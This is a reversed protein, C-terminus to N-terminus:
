LQFFVAQPGLLELWITQLLTSATMTIMLLIRSASFCLFNCYLVTIRSPNFPIFYLLIIKLLLLFILHYPAQRVILDRNGSGVLWVAVVVIFAWNCM